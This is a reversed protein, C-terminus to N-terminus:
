QRILPVAFGSTSNTVSILLYNDSSAGYDILTALGGVSITTTTATTTSTATSTSSTTSTSTSTTTTGATSGTEVLAIRYANKTADITTLSGTITATGSTGTIAGAADITLVLTGNSYTGAARTLTGARAYLASYTLNYTGTDGGATYSGILSSAATVQGSVSLTALSTADPFTVSAPCAANSGDPAYANGTGNFYGNATTSTAVLQVCNNWIMRMEGTPLVILTATHAAGTRTSNLNGTWLGESSVTADNTTTTTSGAGADGGGGCASLALMAFALPLFKNM